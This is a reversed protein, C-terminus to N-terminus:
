KNVARSRRADMPHQKLPRYIEIRDGQDVITELTCVKGFIGVPMELLDIEDFTNLIGSEDIAQQVTTNEDVCISLSLQKDPRAYAVSVNITSDVM